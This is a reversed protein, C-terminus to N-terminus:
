WVDYKPKRGLVPAEKQTPDAPDVPKDGMGSGKIDMLYFPAWLETSRSAIQYDQSLKDAVASEFKEYVLPLSKMGSSRHDGKIWESERRNYWAWRKKVTWLKNYPAYLLEVWYSPVKGWKKKLAICDALLPETGQQPLPADNFKLSSARSSTTSDGRAEKVKDLLTKVSGSSM